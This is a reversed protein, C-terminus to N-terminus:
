VEGEGSDEENKLEEVLKDISNSLVNLVEVHGDAQDNLETVRNQLENLKFILSTKKLKDLKPRWGNLLLIM